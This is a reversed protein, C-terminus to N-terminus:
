VIKGVIVGRLLMVRDNAGPTYSSLYPYKKITVVKEGDFILSPRGSVYNPDVKALRIPKEQEENGFIQVFEDTTIM